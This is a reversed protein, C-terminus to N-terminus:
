RSYVHKEPTKEITFLQPQCLENVWEVRNKEQNRSLQGATSARWEERCVPVPTKRIEGYSPIKMKVAYARFKELGKKKGEKKLKDVVGQATKVPRAFRDGQYEIDKLNVASGEQYLEQALQDLVM